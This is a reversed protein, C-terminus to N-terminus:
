GGVRPKPVIAAVGHDRCLANFRAVDDALVRDLRALEAEARRGLDDTLDRLAQTPAADSYEILTVMTGIRTNLKAPFMRPDESRVQILAEEVTTLTRALTAAAGKIAPIDVRGAWGEAQARVDRIRLVEDHVRSLLDHAKKAWVYQERLDADSAPVRPDKLLDFRQMFTRGHVSLRVQYTGPPVRPGALMDLTGGRGKNDPLRTADPGRLNWVFRNAGANRTPHPEDGKAPAPPDLAPTPEEGGGGAAAPSEPPATDKRSTFSRLERGAGDLFTIVVDGAPAARLWYHVIVGGPPNEGADLLRAEKEGTPSEVQRYAYGISGAMNYAVERNPGPKMGHGKYARWRVTPRPAFLQADAATIADAM